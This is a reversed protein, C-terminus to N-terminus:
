RYGGRKRYKGAAGWYEEAEHFGRDLTELRAADTGPQQRPPPVYGSEKV